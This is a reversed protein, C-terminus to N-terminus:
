DSAYRRQMAAQAMAALLGVVGVLAFSIGGEASGAACTEHPMCAGLGRRSAHVAAALLPLTLPFFVWNVWDRGFFEKVTQLVAAAAMVAFAALIGDYAAEFYGGVWVPDPFEREPSFLQLQTRTKFVIISTVSAMAVIMAVAVAGMGNRIRDVGERM